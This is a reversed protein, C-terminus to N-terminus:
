KPEGGSPAPQAAVEDDIAGRLGDSQYYTVSLTIANEGNRHGVFRTRNKELWDLRVTDRAAGEPSLRRSLDALWERDPPTLDDLWDTASEGFGDRESPFATAGTHQFFQWAAGKAYAYVMLAKERKTLLADRPEPTPM